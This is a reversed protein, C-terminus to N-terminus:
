FKKMSCNVKKENFSVPITKTPITKTPITKMDIRKGLVHVLIRCLKKKVCMINERMLASVDVKITIGIKIRIINEAM